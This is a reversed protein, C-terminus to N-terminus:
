LRVPIGDCPTEPKIAAIPQSRPVIPAADNKRHFARRVAAIPWQLIAGLATVALVVLAWFYPILEQGPGLGVYAMPLSAITIEEHDLM